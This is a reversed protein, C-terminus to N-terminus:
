QHLLRRFNDCWKNAFMATGITVGKDSLKVCYEDFEKVYAAIADMAINTPTKDVVVLETRGKTLWESARCLREAEKETVGDFIIRM